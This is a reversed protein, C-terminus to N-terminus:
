GDLLRQAETTYGGGPQHVVLPSEFAPPGLYGRRAEVLVRRAPDGPQPVVLRVRTAGLTRTELGARLEDLRGAPFVVGVRGTPALLASAADLWEALNLSVEHNAVSREEDPPLLGTGLPRYPPNVVVLDFCGLDKMARVDGARVQFRPDFGNHSSGRAALRALRPQIEVGIGESSPDRALLLFGVAGTGCGIDVFRGFPPALFGALLVPDVSCRFGRAPQIVTVRGRLLTDHTVEGEARDVRGAAARM